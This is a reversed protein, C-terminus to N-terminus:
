GRPRLAADIVGRLWALDAESLTALRGTIELLGGKKLQDRPLETTFLEAEDVGLAAAIQEIVRFRAGSTAGEIKSVMDVSIGAREALVEQTLGVRQRHAKVLRGFRARLDAM